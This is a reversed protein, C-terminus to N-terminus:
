GFVEFASLIRLKDTDVDQRGYADLFRSCWRSDKLNYLISWCGWFLDIHRDGVGGGGVDLFGSFRWGHLMVNPLCYDGHLLVRSDLIDLNRQVVQWADEASSFGVFGPSAIGAEHNGLASAIYAANRDPVPCGSPDTEHLMRLLQGLLASLRKPDDQYQRHLCDEGPIARTVMWDEELSLYALVEAGLGRSHFFGAMDAEQRLTGPAARKIYFGGEKDAYWVRANESCSSDFLAANCTFALLLEPMGPISEVPTRNM